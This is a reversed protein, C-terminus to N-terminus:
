FEGALISAALHRQLVSYPRLNSGADLAHDARNVREVMERTPGRKLIGVVTDMGAAGLHRSEVLARRVPRPLDDFLDDPMNVGLFPLGIGNSKIVM